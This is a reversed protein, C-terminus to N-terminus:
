NTKYYIYMASLSMLIINVMFKVKKKIFPKAKRNREQINNPFKTPQSEQSQNKKKKQIKM